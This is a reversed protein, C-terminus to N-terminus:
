SVKRLWDEAEEDDDDADADRKAAPVADGRRKAEEEARRLEEGEPGELAEEAERAKDAVRGTELTRAVGENYRRAASRSGEGENRQEANEEPKDHEKTMPECRRPGSTDIPTGSRRGRWPARTRPSPTSFRRRREAPEIRTARALLRDRAIGRAHAAGLAEGARAVLTLTDAVALGGRELRDSLV